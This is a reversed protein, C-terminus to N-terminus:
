CICTGPMRHSVTRTPGQPWWLEETAELAAGLVTPPTPQAPAHTAHAFGTISCPQTNDQAAILQEQVLATHGYTLGSASPLDPCM